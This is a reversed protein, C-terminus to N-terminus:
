GAKVELAVTGQYQKALNGFEDVARVQVKLPQGAIYEHPGEIVLKAAVGPQWELTRKQPLRLRKKGAYVLAIEWNESRTHHFRHTAEGDVLTLKLDEAEQGRVHLVFSEAYGVCVQGSEDLAKIHLEFDQGVTMETPVNWIVEVPEAAKVEIHHPTQSRLHQSKEDQLLLAVKGPPMSALDIEGVGNVLKIQNLAVIAAVPTAQPAKNQIAALDIKATEELMLEADPQPVLFPHTDETMAVPAVKPAPKARPEPKIAWAFCETLLVWDQKVEDYVYDIPLIEGRGWKAKLEQEDFPGLQEDLHSVVFKTSSM